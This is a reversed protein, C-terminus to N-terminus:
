RTYTVVFRNSPEKRLIKPQYYSCRIKEWGYFNLIRTLYPETINMILEYKRNSDTKIINMDDATPEAYIMALPLDRHEYILGILSSDIIINQANSDTITKIIDVHNTIHPFIGAMLVTDINELDQSLNELNYIDGLAVDFNSFKEERICKEAISLKFEYIDRMKVYKANYMLSIYSMYGVMCPFDLINKNEIVDKNDYLIKNFRIVDEVPYDFIELPSHNKLPIFKQMHKISFASTKGGAHYMSYMKEYTKFNPLNNLLLQYDEVSLDRKALEEDRRLLFNEISSM